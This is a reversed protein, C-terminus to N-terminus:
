VVQVRTPPVYPRGVIDLMQERTPEHPGLDLLLVQDDDHDVLNDLDAKTEALERPNLDCFFVSYQVHNGLSELLKFVRHRRKDETIDYTVLYHRRPM